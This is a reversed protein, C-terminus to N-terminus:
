LLVYNSDRTDQLFFFYSTDFFDMIYVTIRPTPRGLPRISTITPGGASAWSGGGIMIRIHENVRVTV